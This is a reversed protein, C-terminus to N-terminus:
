FTIGGNMGCEIPHKNNHFVDFQFDRFSVHEFVTPRIGSHALTRACRGILFVHSPPLIKSFKFQIAIDQLCEHAQTGDLARLYLAHCDKVLADVLVQPTPTPPTVQGRGEVHDYSINEHLNEVETRRKKQQPEPNSM